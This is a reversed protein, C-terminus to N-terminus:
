YYCDNKSLFPNIKKLADLAKEEKSFEIQNTTITENKYKKDLSTEVTYMQKAQNIKQSFITLKKQQTENLALASLLQLSDEATKIMEKTISESLLEKKNDFYLLNIDNKTATLASTTEQRVKIAQVNIQHQYLSIRSGIIFLILTSLAFLM